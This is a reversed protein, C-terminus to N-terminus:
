YSICIKTVNCVQMGHLNMPPLHNGFNPRNPMMGGPQMVPPRNFMNMAPPFGQPTGQHTSLDHTPQQGQNGEFQPRCSFIM